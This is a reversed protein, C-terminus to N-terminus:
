RRSRWFKRSKSKFCQSLWGVRCLPKLFSTLFQVISSRSEAATVCAEVYLRLDEVYKSLISKSNYLTLSPTLLKLDPESLPNTTTAITETLAPGLLEAISHVVKDNQRIVSWVGGRDRRECLGGLRLHCTAPVSQTREGCNPYDVVTPPGGTTAGEDMRLRQYITEFCPFPPGFGRAEPIARKSVNNPSGAQPVHLLIPRPGM